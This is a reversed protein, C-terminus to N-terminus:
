CNVPFSPNCVVAIFCTSSSLVHLIESKLELLPKKVTLPDNCMQFLINFNRHHNYDSAIWVCIFLLSQIKIFISLDIYFVTRSGSCYNKGLNYTKHLVLLTLIGERRKHLIHLITVYLVDCCRHVGLLCFVGLGAQQAQFIPILFSGMHLYVYRYYVLM